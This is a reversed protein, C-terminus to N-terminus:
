EELANDLIGAIEDLTHIFSNDDIVIKDASKLQEIQLTLACMALLDQKDAAYVEKFENMKENIMKAASRVMEEEMKDIKLPYPKDAIIVKISLQKDSTKTIV